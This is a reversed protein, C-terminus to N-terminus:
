ALPSISAYKIDSIDMTEDPNIVCDALFKKFNPNPTSHIVISINRILKSLM